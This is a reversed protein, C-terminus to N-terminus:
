HLKQSVITSRRAGYDGPTTSRTISTYANVGSSENVCEIVSDEGMKADNSLGVSIYAAGVAIFLNLSFM